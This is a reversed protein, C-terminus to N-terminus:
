KIIGVLKKRLMLLDLINVKGDANMDGATKFVDVGDFLVLYKRLQVVDLINVSGDANMDGSLIEDNKMFVPVLNDGLSVNDVKYTIRSDFFEKGSVTEVWKAFTYGDNAYAQLDDGYCNLHYYMISNGDSDFNLKYSNLYVTGVSSDVPAISMPKVEGRLHLYENLDDLVYHKRIDIFWEIQQARENKQSSWCNKFRKRYADLYPEYYEFQEEFDNYANDGFCISSVHEIAKVFKETFPKYKVLKSFLTNIPSKTMTGSCANRIIDSYPATQSSNYQYMSYETDYLIFRWRGDNAGDGAPTNVRWVAWNNNPWDANCIYLEAAMYDAFSDIDLKSCIYEYREDTMKQEGAYSCLENFEDVADWEGIEPEGCKVMSVDDGDVNYHEEFYEEKYDEQMIYVGWYEGDLFVLVGRGHQTAFDLDGVMRQIYNDTFKLYSADNGGNRVIFTKYKDIVKGNEDTADAFLPYKFSKAGYDARAYFRLSKQLQTRSAGGQIRMGCDQSIAVSGDSEILDIHCEREWERGRQTSNTQVEWSNTVGPNAAHFEDWYKGNCYIGTEYDFLNDYDTTVSLIPIDGYSCVKDGVFYSKTVTDSLDGNAGISCARIVTSKDVESDSPVNGDAGICIQTSPVASLVNKEGTRDHIDIAGDYEIRTHSSKPDSGDLTYYIKESNEATITLDFGSKYMGSEASFVPNQPKVDPKENVGNPTPVTVSLDASGDPLRGYTTDAALAPIEMIDQLSGDPSTFRITEGSSSIGIPACFGSQNQAFTKSCYVIMYEKAGIKTGDSFVFKYLNKAGDSIGWGSIDIDNDSTNYLEIWDCYTGDENTVSTINGNKGSNSSCIENIVVACSEAFATHVAGIGMATVILAFSLILAFTKKICNSKCNM